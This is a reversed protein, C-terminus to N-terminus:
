RERPMRGGHKCPLLRRCGAQVHGDAFPLQAQWLQHAHLSAARQPVCGMGRVQQTGHEPHRQAVWQHQAQGPGGNQVTGCPQALNPVALEAAKNHGMSHSPKRLVAPMLSANRLRVQQLDYFCIMARVMLHVATSSAAASDTIKTM